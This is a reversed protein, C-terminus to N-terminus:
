GRDGRNGRCWPLVVAGGLRAQERPRLEGPPHDVDVVGEARLEGRAVRGRRQNDVSRLGCRRTGARPASRARRARAVRARRAQTMSTSDLQPSPAAARHAQHALEVDVVRERHERHQEGPLDRQAIRHPREALAARRAAAHLHEAAAAARRERDDVIRVGRIRERVRQSAARRCQRPASRTTNPQPPSRSAPLRGSIPVIAASSASSTMTVSSLGRLSSGARM